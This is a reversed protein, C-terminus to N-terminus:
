KNLSIQLNEYNIKEDLYAKYAIANVKGIKGANGNHVEAYLGYDVVAKKKIEKRKLELNKNSDIDPNKNPMDLVTTVGGFAASLSVTYFDEKHTKGPDRFHVHPDIAGPLVIKGKVDITEDAKPTGAVKKIESIKGEDVAINAEIIKESTVIKCNKLILDVTTM